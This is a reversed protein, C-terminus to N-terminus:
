GTVRGSHLESKKYGSSAREAPFQYTDVEGLFTIKAETNIGIRLSTAAAPDNACQQYVVYETFGSEGDTVMVTYVGSELPNAVNGRRRTGDVSNVEKGDPGYLTIVLGHSPKLDILRVYAM